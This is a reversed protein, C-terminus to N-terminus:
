SRRRLLASLGATVAAVRPQLRMLLDPGRERDRYPGHAGPDGPLTHFLIDRGHQENPVEVMQPAYGKRGLYRDLLGPVLRQAWVTRLAPWGLQVERPANDAAWLVIDAIAEPAFLPPIPQAQRELKNRQRVVQPTNVAPLNVTTIRLQSRDHILESRLSDTFGRIAAKAACYGSQLPISRYALASGVQVITGHNRPHMRRLAALTGHVYGLYTVETVRRYEAATMDIVPAFVTAMACNVWVDIPGWHEEVTTAAAEVSEADAVDLPLVLAEGGAESIERAAAQLGDENRAILAVRDGRRGFARATARGVGSSAGTVVVVKPTSRASM